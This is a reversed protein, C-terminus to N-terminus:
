KTVFELVSGYSYKNIDWVYARTLYRTRTRLGTYMVTYEGDSNATLRAISVNKTDISLTSATSADALSLLVGAGVSKQKGMGTLEFDIKVSSATITYVLLTKVLIGSKPIILSTGEFFMPEILQPQQVKGCGALLLGLLLPLYRTYNKKMNKVAVTVRNRPPKKALAM